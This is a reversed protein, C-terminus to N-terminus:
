WPIRGPLYGPLWEPLRTAIIMSPYIGPYKGRYLVQNNHDYEPLYGPVELTFVKSLLNYVRPYEEIGPNKNPVVMSPTSVRNSWPSGFKTAIIMSPYISPCRGPYIGTYRM